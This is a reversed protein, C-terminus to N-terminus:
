VQKGLTQSATRLIAVQMKEDRSSGAARANVLLRLMVEVLACANISGGLRNGQFTSEQSGLNALQVVHFLQLRQDLFAMRVGQQDQFGQALPIDLRKAQSVRHLAQVM